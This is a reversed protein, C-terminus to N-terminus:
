TDRIHGSLRPRQLRDGAVDEADIAPASWLPVGLVPQGIPALDLAPDPRRPGAAAARSSPPERLARGLCPQVIQEDLSAAALQRPHHLRSGRDRIRRGLPQPPSLVVAVALRRREGVVARRRAQDDAGQALEPELVDRRLQELAPLRRDGPRVAVDLLSEDHQM